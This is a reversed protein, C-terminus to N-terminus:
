RSREVRTFRLIAVTHDSLSTCPELKDTLLRLRLTSLEQCDVLVGKTNKPLLETVTNQSVVKYAFTGGIRVERGYAISPRVFDLEAHLCTPGSSSPKQNIYLAEVACVWVGPLHVIYPLHATFEAGDNGSHLVKSDSSSVHVLFSLNTM